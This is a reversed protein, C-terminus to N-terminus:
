IPITSTGMSLALGDPLRQVLPVAADVYVWRPYTGMRSTNQCLQDSDTSFAHVRARYANYARNSVSCNTHLLVGGRDRPFTPRQCAIDEHSAGCDGVRGSLDEREPSDRGPSRIRRRTWPASIDSSGPGSAHVTRDDVAYGYAMRPSRWCMYTEGLCQLHAYLPRQPVLYLTQIWNSLQRRRRTRM